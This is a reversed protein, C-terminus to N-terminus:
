GAIWDRLWEALAREGLRREAFACLKEASVAAGPPAFAYGNAALFAAMCLLATRRNGDAFARAGALDIYLAAALAAMDECKSYVWLNWPSALALRLAAMDRVEHRGGFKGVIARNYAVAAALPLWRPETPYRRSSTAM